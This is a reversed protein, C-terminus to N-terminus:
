KLTQRLCREYWADALLAEIDKDGKIPKNYQHFPYEGNWGEGSEEFGAYFGECFAKQILKDIDQKEM